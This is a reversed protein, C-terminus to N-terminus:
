PMSSSTLVDQRNVRTERNIFLYYIALVGSGIIVATYVIHGPMFQPPIESGFRAVFPIVLILDYALFGALQGASNGWSPRLLSYVFYVAAGIFMWGYIVSENTSTTWPMVNPVKLVMSGGVIVLAVIFFGFSLRVFRPQPRMARIPINRSLFFLAAGFVVGLVCLVAFILVSTSGEAIQLTFLSVPFLIVLYDLAVGALGGDEDAVALCWLTSAAAAAFISGVFSLSLPTADPLISHWLQVVVPVRLAFAIGFIAQVIAIIFLIIRFSRNM